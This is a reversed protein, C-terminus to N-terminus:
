TEILALLDDLKNAERAPKDKRWRKIRPFRLAVGSKHRSSANIGEFAIEFVLEPSVSRVPGFREITNSNVFRTVEAFEVDTLGSYAKTFPVLSGDETWVAFTFDTYLSSRRGHGKQAYLMVADITYPDVKWKWWEGKKRGSKYIGSKLKIMLGEAMKERSAEKISSLHAWDEFVLEESLMLHLPDSSGISELFEILKGRRYTLSRTRLDVGNWELLDYGIISCPYEKLLKKSVNKKGLRKQLANFPQVQGDKIVILEGDIVFDDNTLNLLTDFEPYSATVLEEGRTWLFLHGDRKILQSRIGDWKYEVQWDQASGLDSIDTDLAYALYFPYPKSIDKEGTDELLLEKFTSNEPSWKGMLRYAIQSESQDTVQALAKIVLKQSVGVRFGGTIIKNFLFCESKSLHQWAWLIFDKKETEEKEKLEILMRIWDSLTYKNESLIEPDVLLSITEALDGVSHYTEEFLWLPIGSKEAAWLRLLTTNVTRKPRRHSFLAITWLKDKDEATTFYEKLAAIKVNTKTSSDIKRFLESFDKM